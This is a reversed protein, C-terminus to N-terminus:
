HRSQPPPVVKCEAEQILTELEPGTFRYSTRCFECTVEAQGEEALLAKLEDCGLSILVREIRERSCSCRYFLDRREIVYFPIGAFIANLIAEPGEGRRLMETVPPLKGIQDVLRNMLQEDVPPFSQILFGGAAAVKGDPEVYVGLGVATPIQESEAFYYALDEAIEGTRLKVIGQYPERLGVDKFVTLFGESGLADSVRIKGPIFPVDVDPNGVFGKVAGDSDAEILVKKLPGNGEFKLGVSQGRKMLAGMLLGGTLARGLAVSAAPSTEHLRAAEDVLDTTVCALGLFSAQGSMVRIM